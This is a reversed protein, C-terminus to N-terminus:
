RLKRHWVTFKGRVATDIDVRRIGARDLIYDSLECKSESANPAKRHGNMHFLFGGLLVDTMQLILTEKSDRFHLRRYPWDRRDGKKAIGRNLILRVDETRNDTTRRDPYIHFLRDKYLRGFKMCLQYVEKNFGIDRSGDNHLKDNIMHMDVILSHYHLPAVGRAGDFFVDVVRKYSPLKATSVKTWKMEGTPLDPKRAKLIATELAARSSLHVVIGALGLYRHKTQSSEDIYVESIQDATPAVRPKYSKMALVGFALL